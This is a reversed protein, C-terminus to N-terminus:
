QCFKVAMLVFSPKNGLGPMFVLLAKVGSVSKLPFYGPNGSEQSVRHKVIFCRLDIILHPCM